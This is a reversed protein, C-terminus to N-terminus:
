YHWWPTASPRPTRTPTRTPTQYPTPTLIAQAPYIELMAADWDLGDRATYESFLAGNIYQKWNPLSPVREFGYSKALETFDLYYGEPIEAKMKGGADYIAPEAAYRAEFDWPHNKLPEGISGDQPLVRIYVRWYTEIGYDERVVEAWGSPLLASNLAFARGTYLWDDYAFGPPLPDNIGVFANEVTGLVDWGAAEICHKRLEDFRNEVAASLKSDPIELDPITVLQYRGNADLLSESNPALSSNYFQDDVFPMQITISSSSWAVGTSRQAPIGLPKIPESDVAYTVLQESNPMSLVAVISRDDPSWAPLRGQGIHIPRANSDEMDLVFIQHVGDEYGSYALYRGDSSFAPSSETIDPSNTINLFRQEPDELDAIFLDNSGDRNSVFIIQRGAPNWAPDFDMAPHGTLTFLQSGDVAEIWLDFSDNEYVEYCLWQNDPSWVPNGEYAETETLRHIELNRMDLWYLDHMNDRDSRFVLMSGDPSLSPESDNWSGQSILRPYPDGPSIALLQNYGNLVDSYIVTGYYAARTAPITTSSPTIELTHTPTWTSSAQIVNETAKEQEGNDNASALNNKLFSIQLLGSFDFFLLLAIAFLAVIILIAAIWKGKKPKEPSPQDPSLRFIYPEYQNNDM